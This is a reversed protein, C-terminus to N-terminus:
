REVGLLVKLGSDRAVNMRALGRELGKSSTCIMLQKGHALCTAEIFPVMRAVGEHRVRLPLDQNTSLHEALMWRGTTDILEVECCWDGTMFSEEDVDSYYWCVFGLKKRREESHFKGIHYITYGDGLDM